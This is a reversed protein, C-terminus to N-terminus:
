RSGIFPLSFYGGKSMSSTSGTTKSGRIEKIRSTEEESFSLVSCIVPLLTVDDTELYRSVITRLYSFPAGNNLKEAAALKADLNKVERKLVETQESRLDSEQQVEELLVGLEELQSSLVVIQQEKAQLYFDDNREEPINNTTTKPSESKPRPSLGLRDSHGELVVSLTSRSGNVEVDLDYDGDDININRRGYNSIETKSDDEVETASYALAKAAAAATRQASAAAEQARKLSIELSDIRAQLDNTTKQYSLATNNARSEANQLAKEAAELRIKTTSHRTEADNIAAQTVNLQQELQAITEQLDDVRSYNTSSMAATSDKRLLDAVTEAREVRIRLEENHKELSQIASLRKRLDHIEKKANQLNTNLTEHNTKGRDDGSSVASEKEELALRAREKYRMFELKLSETERRAEEATNKHTTISMKLMQMGKQKERIVALCNDVERTATELRSEADAAKESETELQKKLADVEEKTKEEVARREANLDKLYVRAKERVRACEAQKSAVLREMEAVKAELVKKEEDHLSSREKSAGGSVDKLSNREHELANKTEALEEQAEAFQKKAEALNKDTESEKAKANRVYEEHSKTEEALKRQADELRRALDHCRARVEILDSPIQSIECVEADGKSSQADSSEASSTKISATETAQLGPSNKSFEFRQKVGALELRLHESEKVMDDKLRNYEEQLDAFKSLAEDKQQKVIINEQKLQSIENNLVSGQQALASKEDEANRLMHKLQILEDSRLKADEELNAIRRDNEEKQRQIVRRAKEKSEAQNKKMQAIREEYHIRVQDVDSTTTSM